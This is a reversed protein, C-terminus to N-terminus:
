RIQNIRIAGSVTRINLIGKGSGLIGECSAFMGNMEPLTCVIRGGASNIRIRAESRPDLDINVAGHDTELHASDGDTIIGSLNITGMINTGTVNGSLNTLRIDDAEAVTHIEGQSDSVQIAGRRTEARLFGKFSVIRISASITQIDLQGKIDHAYVDGKSLHIEIQTGNPIRLQLAIAGPATTSTGGLQLQTSSEGELSVLTIEVNSESASGAISLDPGDHGVLELSAQDLLVILKHQDPLTYSQTPIPFVDVRPSCSISIASLLLLAFFQCLSPFIRQTSQM